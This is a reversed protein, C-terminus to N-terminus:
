AVGFQLSKRDDLVWVLDLVDQMVEDLGTTCRGPQVLRTHVSGRGAPQAANVKAILRNFTAL